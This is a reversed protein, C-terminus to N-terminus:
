REMPNVATNSGQGAATSESRLIKVTHANGQIDNVTLDTGQVRVVVDAGVRYEVMSSNKPATYLVVYITNGVRLSIDYSTVNPDTNQSEAHKVVALIVGHQWGSQQGLSILSAFVLAIICQRRMVVKEKVVIV